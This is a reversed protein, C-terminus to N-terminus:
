QSKAHIIQAAPSVLYYRKNSPCYCKYRTRIRELKIMQRGDTLHFPTDVPIDALTLLSGHGDLQHLVRQLQINRQFTAPTKLFYVLLNKNLDEPFLQQEFLPNILIRFATKWEPGHPTVRRRQQLWVELHALEHIFVLLFSYKGLDNNISIVPLEGKKAARFSGLRLKRPTTIRLHFIYKELYSQILFHTNVPFRALLAALHDSRINM